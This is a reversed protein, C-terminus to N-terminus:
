ASSASPVHSTTIKTSSGSPSGSGGARQAYAIVGALRQAADALGAEDLASYSLRMENAGADNVYFASGPVYAVGAETAAPRLERADLGEPM